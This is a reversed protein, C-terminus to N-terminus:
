LYIIRKNRVSFGYSDSATILIEHVGEQKPLKATWIHPSNRKRLPNRSNGQTPYIKSHYRDLLNLVNPSVMETKNMYFRQGSDLTLIIRTSDSGGFVNAVILVSDNHANLNQDPSPNVWVEMQKDADQGVAKYLFSFQNGSVNIRFYNPYSGCQMLATPIGMENKEGTWWMGCSAGVGLEPIVAVNNHHFYREVTHTHASLILINRRGNLLNLLEDKNRTYKLPGHLAVVILRDKSVYKLDNAVFALEDDSLRTDYGFRGKPLMNNLILFHVSHRNFAYVTSGFIKSYGADTTSSDTVQRDHNGYVTWVPKSFTSMLDKVAPFLYPDDNVLDGMMINFDSHIDTSLESVVSAAAYSVEVSDKVQIDGVANFSFNKLVPSRKLGFNLVGDIHNADLYYFNANPINEKKTSFFYESPLIPFVSARERRNLRYYGNGNTLVIDIGNSVPINKLGPEGKDQFGNANKDLFIKGEVFTEGAFSSVLCVILFLCCFVHRYYM